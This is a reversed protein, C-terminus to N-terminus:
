QTYKGTAVGWSKKGGENESKMKKIVMSLKPSRRIVAGM